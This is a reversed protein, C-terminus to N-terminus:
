RSASRLGTFRSPDREWAQGETIAPGSMLRALAGALPAGHWAEADATTVGFYLSKGQKRVLFLRDLTPLGDRSRSSRRLGDITAAILSPDTSEFYCSDLEPTRPDDAFLVVRGFDSPEVNARAAFGPTARRCGGLGLGALGVAVLVIAALAVLALRNAPSEFRAM